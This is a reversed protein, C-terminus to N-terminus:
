DINGLPVDIAGLAFDAQVLGVGTLNDFGPTNMDLATTELATYVANPALAPNNQLLLAAVGAAHPAAASTGSFNPLGDGDVDVGFFTTNANDPATIDPKARVVNVATGNVAFRIPTGGRSTFGEQVAPTTGFEPTQRYDAAAVAEGGVTNAH